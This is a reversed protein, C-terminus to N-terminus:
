WFLANLLLWQHTGVRQKSFLSFKACCSSHHFLFDMYANHKKKVMFTMSNYIKWHRTSSTCAGWLRHISFIYCNCDTKPLGSWFFWLSVPSKITRCLSKTENIRKLSLLFVHYAKHMPFTHCLANNSESSIAFKLYYLMELLVYLQLACGHAAESVRVSWYGIMGSTPSVIKLTSVAQEVSRILRPRHFWYLCFILVM